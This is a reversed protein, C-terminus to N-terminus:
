PSFVEGESKIRNEETRHTNNKGATRECLQDRPATQPTSGRRVRRPRVFNLWHQSPATSSHKQGPCTVPFQPPEHTRRDTRRHIGPTDETGEM